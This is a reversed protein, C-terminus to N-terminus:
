VSDRSDYRFYCTRVGAPYLIDVYEQNEITEFFFRRFHRSIPWSKTWCIKWNVNMCNSLQFADNLLGIGCAGLEEHVM